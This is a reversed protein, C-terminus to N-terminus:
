MSISITIVAFVSRMGSTLEPIVLFFMMLMGVGIDGSYSLHLALVVCSMVRIESIIVSVHINNLIWAKPVM